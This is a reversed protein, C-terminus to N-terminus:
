KLYHTISFYGPVDFNSKDKSSNHMVAIEDVSPYRLSRIKTRTITKVTKVYNKILSLCDDPSKLEVMGNCVLRQFKDVLEKDMEKSTLIYLSSNKKLNNIVVTGKFTNNNVPSIDM